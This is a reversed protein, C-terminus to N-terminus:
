RDLGINGGIGLDREIAAACQDEIFVALEFVVDAVTNEAAGILGPPDFVQPLVAINGVGGEGLVYKRSHMQIADYGRLDIERLSELRMFGSFIM